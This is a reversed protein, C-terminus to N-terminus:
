RSPSESARGDCAGSRGSGRLTAVAKGIAENALRVIPGLLTGERGAEPHPEPPCLPAAAPLRWVTSQLRRPHCGAPPEVRVGRDIVFVDVRRNRANRGPRPDVPCGEGYALTRVPVVPGPAAAAKRAAQAKAAKPAALLAQRVKVARRLSLSVNHRWSGPDDAHGDIEIAAPAQKAADARLTKRAEALVARNRPEDVDLGFISAPLRLLHFEAKASRGSEDSVTMRVVYPRPRPPLDVSLQEIDGREIGAINWHRVLREHDEDHTGKSQFTVRRSGLQMHVSLRAVPAHAVRLLPQGALQSCEVTVAGTSANEPVIFRIQREHWAQTKPNPMLRVPLPAGFDGEGDAAGRLVANRAVRDLVPAGHGNRHIPLYVGDERGEGEHAGIEDGGVSLVRNDVLKLYLGHDDPRSLRGLHKFGGNEARVYPEGKELRLLLGDSAEVYEATDPRHAYERLITARVGGVRVTHGNRTRGFGGVGANPASLRLTVREGPSANEPTLSLGAGYNPRVASGADELRKAHAPQPTGPKAGAEALEGATLTAAAGAPTEVAPTLAYAMELASDAADEVSQLPGVSMAVVESKPVWELRGSHGTLRNGCGETAVTAFYVRDDAETVYLGQIAEDPGDSTRILAMPQVQPDELNRAMASLTGFLPVSLFVAVGYWIVRRSALAAIRWLGAALAAAAAISVAVWGEQLWLGPLVVAVALLVLMLIAGSGRLVLRQPRENLLREDVEEGGKAHEARRWRELSGALSGTPEPHKEQAQRRRKEQEHLLVRLQGRSRWLAFFVSWVLSASLWVLLVASSSWCLLPVAGAIGLAVFILPELLMLRGWLHLPLERGGLKKRGWKSVAPWRNYLWGSRPVSVGEALLLMDFERRGTREGARSPLDDELYVFRRALTAWLAGAVPLAVLEAAAITKVISLGDAIVVTTVAEILFVLLLARAMGPTARAGRDILFAGILALVGFFGFLLLLASGIAVLEDRPVANVAQDPPVKAASFRTWVIVGGAFAVFGILSAGTLLVPILQRAAATLLDPWASKANEGGSEENAM